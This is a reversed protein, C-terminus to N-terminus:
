HDTSLIITPKTSLIIWMNKVLKKVPVKILLGQFKFKKKNNHVIFCRNIINSYIDKLFFLLLM